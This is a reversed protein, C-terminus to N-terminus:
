GGSKAEPAASHFKAPVDTSNAPPTWDLVYRYPRRRTTTDRLVYEYDILETLCRHLATNSCKGQERVQRRTFAFRGTDDCQGGGPRERTSAKMRDLLLLLDRSPSRFLM